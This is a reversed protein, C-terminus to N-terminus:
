ILNHKKFIPLSRRLTELVVYMREIPLGDTLDLKLIDDEVMLTPTYDALYIMRYVPEDTGVKTGVCNMCMILQRDSTQFIQGDKIKMQPLPKYEIINIPQDM